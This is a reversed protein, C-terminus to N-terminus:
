VRDMILTLSRRLGQMVSRTQRMGGDLVGTENLMLLSPLLKGLVAITTAQRM